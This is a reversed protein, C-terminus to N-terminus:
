SRTSRPAAAWAAIVAAPVHSRALLEAALKPPIPDGPRAAQWLQAELLPGGRDITGTNVTYAAATGATAPPNVANQPYTPVEGAYTADASDRPQDQFLDYPVAATQSYSTLPSIGTILEILRMVSAQSIHVHSVAGRKVYGGAALLINRHGDRHDMGDQSDDEEVLVLTQNWDPRHSLFDVVQGIAQDNTSILASPTLGGPTTGNTHDNGMIMYTFASANYEQKFATFRDTDKQSTLTLNNGYAAGAGGTAIGNQDTPLASHLAGFINQTGASTPVVGVDSNSLVQSDNAGGQVTCRAEPANPTTPQVTALGVLEGFNQFGVKAAALQEFISGCRPYVIPFIPDYTHNRNSYNQVWDKEEYDTTIGLSTWDHGQISADGDSYFNDSLGFQAAIDHANVTITKGNADTRPYMSYAPNADIGARHQPGPLATDGFVQDFTRNERVILVVHKIPSQGAHAADPVPNGSSRRANALSAFAVDGRAQRTDAALEAATPLAVTQLLGAMDNGDYQDKVVNPIGGYGKASVALISGEPRVAVAAPYLGTPVFGLLHLQAPDPAAPAATNPLGASTSTVAPVTASAVPTVPSGNALRSSLTGFVAVADDGANTVYILGRDDDIAVANPASGPSEGTFLHTSLQRVLTPVTVRLDIVSLSDGNSEAVYAYRSDASIRVATPHDGVLIAGGPLGSVAPTAVPLGTKPDFVIVSALGQLTAVALSGDGTIAVDAPYTGALGAAGVPLEWAIAGTSTTIGTLSSGQENAVVLISGDSTLALGRSYGSIDGVNQASVPIGGGLGAPPSFPVNANSKTTSKWRQALTLTGNVVSYDYVQDNGGGAAYLHRGDPSFALGANYFTDTNSEHDQITQRVTGNALDIVQLSEDPAGVRGGEGQGANSVVAIPSSPSVAIGVPFDGLTTLRGVPTVLRGNMVLAGNGYRGTPSDNTALPLDATAGRHSHDGLGVSGALVALLGGLVLTRPRRRSRPLTAQM